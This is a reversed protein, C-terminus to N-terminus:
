KRSGAMVQELRALRAELRGRLDDSAPPPQEIDGASIGYSRELENLMAEGKALKAKTEERERRIALRHNRQEKDSCRTHALRELLRDGERPPFRDFYCNIDVSKPHPYERPADPFAEGCLQCAWGDRKRLEAVKQEYLPDCERGAGRRSNCRHHALRLNDLAGTGGKSEPVIHDRAVSLAHPYRPPPDPIPEDCLQCIWGDRARLARIEEAKTTSRSMRAGARDPM